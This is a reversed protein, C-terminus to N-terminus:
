AYENPFKNANDNNWLYLFSPFSKTLDYMSIKDAPPDFFGSFNNASCPNSM